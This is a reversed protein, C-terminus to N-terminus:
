HEDAVGLFARLRTREDPELVEDLWALLPDPQVFLRRDKFNTERVLRGFQLAVISSGSAILAASREVRPNNREMGLAFRKASQEDMVQCDRWDAISVLRRGHPAKTFLVDLAHFVEEVDSITRFGAELRIELLRGVNIAVSNKLV